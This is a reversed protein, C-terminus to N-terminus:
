CQPIGVIDVINLLRRGCVTIISYQLAYIASSWKAIPTTFIKAQTHVSKTGGTFHTTFLNMLMMTLISLTIYRSCDASARVQNRCLHVETWFVIAMLIILVWDKGKWTNFRECSGIYDGACMLPFAFFLGNRTTLFIETYWTCDPVLWSYSGNGLTGITYFFLATLYMVKKNKILCFLVGVFVMASLYWLYGPTKFLLVRIPM